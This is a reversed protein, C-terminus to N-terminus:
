NGLTQEYTNLVDLIRKLAEVQFCTVRTEFEMNDKEISKWRIANLLRIDESLSKTTESQKEQKL